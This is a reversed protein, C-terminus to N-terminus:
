KVPLGEKYAVRAENLSMTNAGINDDPHEHQGPDDEWGCVPCINYFDVEELTKQGCCPCLYKTM